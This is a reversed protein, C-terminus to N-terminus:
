WRQGGVARKLGEDVSVPPTWSLLQRTKTIDLQLSGCLRQYISPKNLVTAGLKLLAPPMYFLRAPHDLATGMRKLLETTSLDEGDSVLFTQNAAAPHKL